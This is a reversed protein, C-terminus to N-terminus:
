LPRRREVIAFTAALWALGFSGFAAIQYDPAHVGIVIM